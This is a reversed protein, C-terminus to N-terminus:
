DTSSSARAPHPPLRLEELDPMHKVNFVVRMEESSPVGVCSLQIGREGMETPLIHDVPMSIDGDRVAVACNACAGGRCSFPWVFGRSEAAELLSEAPDTLFMGYDGPDLNAAAAKEFLDEDSLDWGFDDLVEYNLYQVRTGTPRPEPEVLDEEITPGWDTEGSRIREFARKVLQFERVTGGHDPHAEKVRRRYATVIEPDDADPDIGLVDFPSDV